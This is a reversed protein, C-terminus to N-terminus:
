RMRADFNVSEQGGYDVGYVLDIEFRFLRLESLGGALISSAVAASGIRHEVSSSCPGRVNRIASQLNPIEVFGCDM